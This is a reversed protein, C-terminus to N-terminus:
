SHVLLLFADYLENDSLPRYYTSMQRPEPEVERQVVVDKLNSNAPQSDSM